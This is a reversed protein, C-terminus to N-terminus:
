QLNWQFLSLEGDIFAPRVRPNSEYAPLAMQLLPSALEPNIGHQAVVIGSYDFPRPVRVVDGSYAEFYVASVSETVEVSGEAYLRLTDYSAPGRAVINGTSYFNGCTSHGRWDLLLDGNEVVLNMPQNKGFFRRNGSKTQLNESLMIEKKLIAKFGDAIKRRLRNDVNMSDNELVKVGYSTGALASVSKTSLELWPGRMQRHVEPLKWRWYDSEFYGAPFGKLEALIASEEDYINQLRVENMLAVRRISGPMRLMATLMCTIAFVVAVVLPM